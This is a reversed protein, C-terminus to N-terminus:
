NLVNDKHEINLGNIEKEKKMEAKYNYYKINSMSQGENFLNGTRKKSVFGRVLTFKFLSVLDRYVNLNTEIHCYRMLYALGDWVNIDVPYTARSHDSIDTKLNIINTEMIIKPIDLFDTDEFSYHEGIVRTAKLVFNLNLVTPDVKDEIKELNRLFSKKDTEDNRRFQKKSATREESKYLSETASFVPSYVVIERDNPDLDINPNYALVYGNKLIVASDNAKNKEEKEKALEADKETLIKSVSKKVGMKSLDVYRVPQIWFNITEKFTKPQIMKDVLFISEGDIYIDEQVKLMEKIHGFVGENVSKWEDETEFGSFYSKRYVDLSLVKGDYFTICAKKGVNVDFHLLSNKKLYLSFVKYHIPIQVAQDKLRKYGVTESEYTNRNKDCIVEVFTKFIKRIYVYEFTLKNPDFKIMSSEM